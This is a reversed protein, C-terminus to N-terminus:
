HACARLVTKSNFLAQQQLPGATSSPKNNFCPSGGGRGFEQATSVAAAWFWAELKTIPVNFTKSKNVDYTGSRHQGQDGLGLIREDGVTVTQAWCPPVDEEDKLYRAIDKHVM